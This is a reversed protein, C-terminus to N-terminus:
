ISILEIHMIYKLNPHVIEIPILTEDKYKLLLTAWAIGGPINPLQITQTSTVNQLM